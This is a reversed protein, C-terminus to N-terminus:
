KLNGLSTEFTAGSVNRIRVKGSLVAGDGQVTVLLDGNQANTGMLTALQSGTIELVGNVAVGTSVQVRSTTPAATGNNAKLEVFVPGTAQTGSNAIRLTATNNPNNLTFWPAVFNTGDLDVKLLDVSTGTAPSVYGTAYTPTITATYTGSQLVPANTTPVTLVFAGSRAAAGTLAFSASNATLSATTASVGAIPPTLKDLNTGSVTATASAVINAPTAEDTANALTKFFKTAAIGSTSSQAVSFGAATATRYLVTSGSVQNSLTAQNAATGTKFAKFDPLGALTNNVTATYATLAAKYQVLKAAAATDIVVSTGGALQSLTAGVSIDGESTSAIDTTLTMGTLSRAAGGSVFTVLFSIKEGSSPSTNQVQYDTGSVLAGTGTFSLTPATTTDFKGAGTLDFSVTYSPTSNAPISVTNTLSSSISVSGSTTKTPAAPTPDTAETAITYPTVTGGTVVTQGNITAASITGANAAGAFALAAVAGAALLLNKTM